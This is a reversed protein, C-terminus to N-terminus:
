HGPEEHHYDIDSFCTLHGDWRLKVTGTEGHRNKAVICECTSMTNEDKTYYADRYLFLVIDADQEISGSDRLDSLMPRKDERQEPGRTLQSLTIVPVNLEKAMIKLSRTLESIEAVRNGSRNGTSMLQLYDIIVLGLNNLRRLRSKMEGITIGPAEDVFINAEYLVDAAEALKKWDDASIKGTKFAEMPIKSDSSLMRQVLQKSPMELTFIAVSMDRDHRAARVAINLAFATKGMGPRAALLILDSKNLDKGMLGRGDPDSAVKSLEDLVASVTGSIHELGQGKKGTRIDFIRKEAYEVLAEPVDENDMAKSYIDRAATILQRQQYKQVIVEAYSAISSSEVAKDSLQLIYARAEERSSFVKATLCRETVQVANPEGSGVYIGAMASFIGSHTKSYFYEPALDGMVQGILDPHLLIAGLVTQEADISHPLEADSITIDAM